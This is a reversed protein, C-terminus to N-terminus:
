LSWVNCFAKAFGYAKPAALQDNYAGEIGVVNGAPDQSTYGLFQGALNQL